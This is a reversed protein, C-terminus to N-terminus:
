SKILKTLLGEVTLVKQPALLPYLTDIGLFIPLKRICSNDLTVKRISTQLLVLNICHVFYELNISLFPQVRSLNEQIRCSPLTFEWNFCIYQTSSSSQSQSLMDFCVVISLFTFYFTLCM